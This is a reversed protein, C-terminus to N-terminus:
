LILYLNNCLTPSPHYDYFVLGPKDLPGSSKYRPRTELMKNRYDTGLMQVIQRWWRDGGDTEVMQRWWRDGGYTELRRRRGFKDTDPTMMM